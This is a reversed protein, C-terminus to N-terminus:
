QSALIMQRDSAPTDTQQYRDIILLPQPKAMRFINVDMRRISRYLLRLSLSEFLIHKM